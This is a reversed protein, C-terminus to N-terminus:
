CLNEAHRQDQLAKEYKTVNDQWMEFNELITEWLDDTRRSVEEASAKVYTNRIVEEAEKYNKPVENVLCWCTFLDEREDAQDLQKFMEKILFAYMRAQKKYNQKKM